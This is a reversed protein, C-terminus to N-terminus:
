LFDGFSFIFDGKPRCPDDRQIRACPLSEGSGTRKKKQKKESSTMEGKM